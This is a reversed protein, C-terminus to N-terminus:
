KQSIQLHSNETWKRGRSRVLKLARVGDAISSAEDAAPTAGTPWEYLWVLTSYEIDTTPGPSPAPPPTPPITATCRCVREVTPFSASCKSVKPYDVFGVCCGTWEDKGSCYNPQDPAWWKVCKACKTANMNSINLHAMM